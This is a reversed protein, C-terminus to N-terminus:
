KEFKAGSQIDNILKSIHAGYAISSDSEFSIQPTYRLEVRHFLEKRIFGSAANLAKIADNIAQEEAMISVFVKCYKLDPTLDIATVTTMTPIRPDKLERLIASLERKVDENTRSFRHSPM